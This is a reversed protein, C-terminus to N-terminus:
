IQDNNSKLTCQREKELKDYKDNWFHGKFEGDQFVPYGIDDHLKFHCTKCLTRLETIQENQLHKYTIHHAHLEDVSGCLVCKHEDYALRARRPGLLWKDSRLYKQKLYYAEVEKFHEPDIRPSTPQENPKNADDIDRQTYARQQIEKAIFYAIFSLILFTIINAISNDDM